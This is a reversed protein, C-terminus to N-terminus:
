RGRHPLRLRHDQRRPAPGHRGGHHAGLLVAVPPGGQVGQLETEQREQQAAAGDAERHSGGERHLEEQKRNETGGVEQLTGITQKYGQIGRESQYDAGGQLGQWNEPLLSIGEGTPLINAM